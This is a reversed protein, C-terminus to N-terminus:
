KTERAIQSAVMKIRKTASYWDSSINTPAEIEIMIRQAIREGHEALQIEITKEM